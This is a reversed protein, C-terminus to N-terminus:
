RRVASIRTDAAGCRGPPEEVRYYNRGVYSKSYHNWATGHDLAQVGALTVAFVSSGRDRQQPDLNEPLRASAYNIYYVRRVCPMHAAADLAAKATMQHDSHDNPNLRQDTEAINLQAVALAGREYSIIAEITATLDSWGRYVTSGDIAAFTGIDGNAFRKLSQYGTGSFGSGDLNGDPLRLFYSATKRYGVRYIPHGNFTMTTISRTAPMDDADTMFRVATEAGNERALFFPHKRGGAGMGMGADGATTHIFVTKAAGGAVDDFASPGMFLQWDDEHAAFYFSVKSPRPADTAHATVAQLAGCLLVACGVSRLGLM